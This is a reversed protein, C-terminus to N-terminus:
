SEGAFFRLISQAVVDPQELPGFHGLGELHEARGRPLRAVLSEVVRPPFGESATGRAVTVPCAVEPLHVFGDHASAMEAMLAEHEPRCKLAVRGNALDQFGHEVYSRLVAPALAALPPKSAYSAYAEERSAFVERRRRVRAALWNGPDRGLPPDAAVVVPEFCYLARFTGPRAQEALLVAAGGSSHGVAYPRALGLGEVVALVDRGFGHWDFDGGPPTGSDGHGRLDPAVCRFSRALMAALPRWVLGHFGSAHVLVLSEGHGGLDHVLVNVGDSATVAQM